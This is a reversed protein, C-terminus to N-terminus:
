GGGRSGTLRSAVRDFFDEVERRIVPLARAVGERLEERSRWWEEVRSLLVDPELEECGMVFRELGFPRLLEAYKHSWSLAFVPVGSSLAAVLAHYRSGVLGALQGIVAKLDAASPNENWAVIGPEGALGAVLSCLLRDDVAGTEQALVNHPILVVGEGRSHFYRCLAVLAVVYGNAAGSGPARQYVKLNPAIGVVLGKCPVGLRVLIDRGREPAAGAFLFAIDPSFGIQGPEVGELQLLHERSAEDRAMVLSAPRCVRACWERVEPREFPGWAQPFLLYPINMRRCYDAVRASRRAPAAGWPDGYAYGSIDVVGDVAQSRDAAGAAAEYRRDWVSPLGRIGAPRPASKSCAPHDTVIEMGERRLAQRQVDTFPEKSFVLWEIPGLRKQLGTRVSHMMAEAGKNTCGGGILLLRM